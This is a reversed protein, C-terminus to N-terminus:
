KKSVALNIINRDEETCHELRNTNRNWVIYFTQKYRLFWFRPYKIFVKFLINKNFKISTSEIPTFFRKPIIIKIAKNFTDEPFIPNVVDSESTGILNGEAVAYIKMDLSPIETGGKNQFNFQLGFNLNGLKNITKDYTSFDNLSIKPRLTIQTQWFNLFLALASIIIAFISLTRTSSNGKEKKCM